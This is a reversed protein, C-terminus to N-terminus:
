QLIPFNLTSFSVINAPCFNEVFQLNPNETSRCMKRVVIIDLSMPFLPQSFWIAYAISLFRWNPLTCMLKRHHTM